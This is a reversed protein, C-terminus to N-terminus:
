LKFYENTADQDHLEKNPIGYCLGAAWIYYEVAHRYDESTSTTCDIFLDEHLKPLVVDDDM